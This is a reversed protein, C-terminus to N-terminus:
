CGLGGKIQGEQEVVDDDQVPGLGAEPSSFPLNTRGTSDVFPTPAPNIKALYRAHRQQAASM